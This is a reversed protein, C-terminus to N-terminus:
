SQTPGVKRLAALCPLIFAPHARYTAPTALMQQSFGLRPAEEGFAPRTPLVRWCVELRGVGNACWDLDDQSDAHGVLGTLRTRPTALGPPSAPAHPNVGTSAAKQSFQLLTPDVLSDEPDRKPIVGHLVQMGKVNDM